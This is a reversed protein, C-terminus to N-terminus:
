GVGARKKAPLAARLATRLPEALRQFAAENPHMEDNWDADSALLGRFDVITLAAGYTKKIEKLVRESFQDILLRAFARQEDETPLAKKVHKAIWDGISHKLLAALGIQEVTLKAPKGMLIPYDYTHTIVQLKPRAKFASDLARRYARLVEAFRGTDVVCQLAAAPTMPKAGKFTDRLFDDVFDNGGASLLLVDFEFAKLRSSLKRLRNGQFIDLALDGSSEMRMFLANRAQAELWDVLNFYLPTSFWSDGESLIVPTTPLLGARDIARYHTIFKGFETHTTAM